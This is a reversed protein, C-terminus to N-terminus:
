SSCTGCGSACVFETRKCFKCKLSNTVPVRIGGTWRVYGLLAVMNEGISVEVRKDRNEHVQLGHHEPAARNGIEAGANRRTPKEPFMKRPM